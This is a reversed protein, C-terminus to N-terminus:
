SWLTKGILNGQADYPPHQLIWRSAIYKVGVTVPLGAHRMGRDLEGDALRQLETGLRILHPWDWRYAPSVRACWDLFFPPVYRTVREMQRDTLVPGDTIAPPSVPPM